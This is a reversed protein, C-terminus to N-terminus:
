SLFCEEKDVAHYDLGLYFNLWSSSRNLAWNRPSICGNKLIDERGVAKLRRYVPVWACLKEKYVECRMKESGGCPGNRLFKPCQSEPCIYAMDSLACDGCSLCDFLLRKSLHEIAFCPKKFLKNNNVFEAAKKLHPFYSKRKDFLTNHFSEFSLFSCLARMSRQSRRSLVERNLGTSDDREYLYFGNDYPFNFEPVFDRWDNQIERFRHIVWRVDEYIPAGSIHAGRYGLGKLVAMLRATRELSSAKGKEQGKAEDSIQRYLKDTVYVGPIKGQNMFRASPENLIYISGIAPIGIYTSKLFFLLEQFKRADYCLQSIIYQAGNHIKKILKYYQTLTESESFKFCSVSVGLFFGTRETFTTDDKACFLPTGLNMKQLMCLLTVSDLDFCPKSVGSMREAPYDGTLVLLNETGIRDLQQARSYAGFRSVDRCTVHIVPVIGLKNIERGLEDPSLAPNGGPNDTLTLADLLRDEVAKAAFEVLKGVSRGRASRGPVLEFTTVFDSTNELKYRFNNVPTAM